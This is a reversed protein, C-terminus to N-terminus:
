CVSSENSLEESVPTRFTGKMDQFALDFRAGALWALFIMFMSIVTLTGIVAAILFMMEKKAAAAEEPTEGTAALQRQREIAVADTTTPFISEIFQDIRGCAASINLFNPDKPTNKERIKKCYKKFVGCVSRLNGVELMLECAEGKPLKVNKQFVDKNRFVLTLTAIAMVQPIAAFNFVSQEKIGALYLLCEDAHRLADLCMESICSLAIEEKKPDALSKFDETYKAWIQKPWFRRGDDFDERYDRIINTKQLFNGMANSLHTRELLVPNAYKAECFLATLGEGVLGAVYHCYLDYDEITNVGNVNHEANNAYDAMGNGMKRAIDKIIDKYPKKIKAFEENVVHFDVLLQRDKENPGSKTFNWGPTDLIEHFSRLIPEKEELSITMDDEITDLGRLILYFLAIPVCLEPNLEQIVAAFSRSTMELLEFCRKLTPTETALNREYLPNHWVKWQILARLQNPHALYHLYKLVGM